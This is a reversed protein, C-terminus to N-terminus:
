NPIRLLRFGAGGSDAIGRSVRKLTAATVDFVRMIIDDATVSDNLQLVSTRNLQGNRAQEINLFTGHSGLVFNEGAVFRLAASSAVALWEVGDWGRAGITLLVDNTQVPLKGQKTGRARLGVWFADTGYGYIAQSAVGLDAAGYAHTAEVGANPTPNLYLPGDAIAGDPLFQM